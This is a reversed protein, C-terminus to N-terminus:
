WQTLPKENHVATSIASPTTKALYKTVSSSLHTLPPLQLLGRKQKTSGFNKRTCLSLRGTGYGLARVCVAGVAGGGGWDGVKLTKGPFSRLIDEMLISISHSIFLALPLCYISSSLGMWLPTPPLSKAHPTLFSPPPLSLPTTEHLALATCSRPLTESVLRLLKALRASMNLCPHDRRRVFGLEKCFPQSAGRWLYKM